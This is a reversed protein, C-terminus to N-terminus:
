KSLRTHGHPISATCKCDLIIEPEPIYHIAPRFDEAVNKQRMTRCNWFDAQARKPYGPPEVICHIEKDKHNIEPTLGGLAHGSRVGEYKINHLPQSCPRQAVDKLLCVPM